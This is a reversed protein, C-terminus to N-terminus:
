GNPPIAPAAAGTQLVRERNRAAVFFCLAGLVYLLAAAAFVPTYGMSGQLRGSLPPAVTAGLNAASSLVLAAITHEHRPAADIVLARYVPLALNFAGARMVATIIVLGAWPAFAMVAVGIGSILAAIVVLWRRGIRDVLPPAAFAGIGISLNIFAQTVGVTTDGVRHVDKLFLPLFPFVMSGGFFVLLLPLGTLIVPTRLKLLVRPDLYRIMPMRAADAMDPDDSAHTQRERILALPALALFRLLVSGVLVARYAEASEPGTSLWPAILAPLTGVLLSGLFLGVTTLGEQTTFLTTREFPTSVQALLPTVALGFLVNAVGSITLLVVVASRDGTAMAAGWTLLSVGGGFVISRLRGLRDVLLIAPLLGLLGGIQNATTLLGIWTADFGIARFYLNAFVTPASTGLALFFSAILFLRAERSFARLHARYM